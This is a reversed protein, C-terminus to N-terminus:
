NLPSLASQVEMSGTMATAGNVLVVRLYRLITKTMVIRAEVGPTATAPSGHVATGAATAQTAVSYINAGSAASSEDIFLTATVTGLSAYAKCGFWNYSSGDHLAGTFTASSGLLVTTEVTFLSVDAVPLSSVIAAIPNGTSDYLQVAAGTAM